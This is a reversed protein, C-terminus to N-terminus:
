LSASACCPTYATACLLMRHHRHESFCHELHLSAQWCLLLSRVLCERSCCYCSHQIGLFAVAASGTAQAHMCAHRCGKWSRMNCSVSLGVRPCCSLLLGFLQDKCPMIPANLFRTSCDQQLSIHVLTPLSLSSYENGLKCTYCVDHNHM